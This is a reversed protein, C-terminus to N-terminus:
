LPLRVRLGVATNEPLSVEVPDSVAGRLRLGVTEKDAVVVRVPGM